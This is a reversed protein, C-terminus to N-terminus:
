DNLYGQRRAWRSYFNVIVTDPKYTLKVPPMIGSLKSLATIKSQYVSIGKFNVDHSIRPDDIRKFIDPMYRNLRKEGVVYFGKVIRNPDNSKILEEVTGESIASLEERKSSPKCAISLFILAIIYRM